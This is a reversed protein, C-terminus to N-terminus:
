LPVEIIENTAPYWVYGEDVKMGTLELAKAYGQVQKIYKANNDKNDGFKYDILVTKGEPTRIIRDPRRYIRKGDDGILAITRENCVKNRDDFWAGTKPDALAREVIEKAEEYNDYILGRRYGVRLVRNKMSRRKLMSFLKHMKIGKEQIASYEEPMCVKLPDAYTYIEPLEDGLAAIIPPVYQKEPKVEVKREVHTPTGVSYIRMNGDFGETASVAVRSGYSAYKEELAAANAEDLQPMISRLHSDITDAKADGDPAFIHLEDVARTFAVYTKNLNDIHSQSVNAEFPESLQPITKVVSSKMPVIPPVIEDPIDSFQPITVFDKHEVWILDNLRCMNWDAFPVIVVPFELGKSKHITMVKVSDSGSPAPVSLLDKKQDWWKLFSHVTAPYKSMYDYVCDFFAMLFANEAKREAEPVVKCVINEIIAALNFDDAITEVLEKRIDLYERSFRVQSDKDDLELEHSLDDAFIQSLLKGREEPDDSEMLSERMDYERLVRWVKAQRDYNRRVREDRGVTLNVSDFYRLNSIVLRVAPSSNLFMSEGSVVDIKRDSTENHEMIRSVVEAGEPNTNVLIAMDGLRYGRDMLQCIYDPLMDLVTSDYSKKKQKTADENDSDDEAEGPLPTVFNVRVYGSDGTKKPNVTQILNSYTAEAKLATVLKDFLVNNFRIVNPASRWNVIKERDVYVWPAFDAEVQSQFLNPDSNRFRYICQKEDGIILNDDGFSASEELLPSLNQYQMMSTDQFEDILYHDIWTGMREYMFLVSGKRVVEKLLQNTDSLLVTKNRRLFEEMKIGIIGLLGFRYLNNQVDSVMAKEQSPKYSDEVLQQMATLLDDHEHAKVQKKWLRDTSWGELNKLDWERSKELFEESIAKGEDCWKRIDGLKPRSSLAFGGEVINAQRMIDQYRKLCEKRFAEAEGCKKAVAKRFRNIRSERYDDDTLDAFYADIEDKKNQYFEKTINEAFSRLQATQFVNWSQRDNLKQKMFDVLWSHILGSRMAGSGMEMLFINVGMRTSYKSDLEVEYDYDFDLEFAFTRLVTQFFSDITSVNFTTYNFLIEQLAVDATQKLKEEDTHLDAVLQKLYDGKGQSLLCLEKVIRQKMEDTAKNTFTIALIHQHYEERNALYYLGTEKNKKGLLIKIYEYTLQYTKGSGASAKIVKLSPTSTNNM